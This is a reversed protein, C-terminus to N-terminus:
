YRLRIVFRNDGPRVAIRAAAFSPPGFRLAPDNTFGYGEAPLGLFNRDFHHNNNEDHYVAVAYNGPAPVAFCATAQSTSLMVRTLGISGKHALFAAPDSGYLTFTINGAVRRAGTVTVILHPADVPLRATGTPLAAATCGESVSVAPMGTAGLAVPIAYGLGTALGLVLGGLRM